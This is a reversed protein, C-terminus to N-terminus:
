GQKELGGSERPPRFSESVLLLIHVELVGMLIQCV